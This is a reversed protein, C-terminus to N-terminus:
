GRSSLFRHNRGRQVAELAEDQDRRLKKEDDLLARLEAKAKAFRVGMCVWRRARLQLGCGCSRWVGPVSRWHRFPTYSQTVPRHPTLPQMPPVKSIAELGSIGSNLFRRFTYSIVLAWDLPPVKSHCSLSVSTLRNELWCQSVSLGAFIPDGLALSRLGILLSRARQSGSLDRFSASGQSRQHSIDWSGAVIDSPVVSRSCQDSAEGTETQSNYLM